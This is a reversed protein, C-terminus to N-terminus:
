PLKCFSIVYNWTTHTQIRVHASLYSINVPNCHQAIKVANCMKLQAKLSFSFFIFSELLCSLGGAHFCLLCVARKVIRLSYCFPRLTSLCGSFIVEPRVKYAIPLWHVDVKVLKCLSVSRHCKLLSKYTM